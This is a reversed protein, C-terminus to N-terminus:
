SHALDRNVNQESYVIKSRDAFKPDIASVEDRFSFQSPQLDTFDNWIDKNNLLIKYLFKM